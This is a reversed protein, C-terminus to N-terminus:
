VLTAFSMTERIGKKFVQLTPGFFTGAGVANRENQGQECAQDRHRHVQTELSGRGVLPASGLVVVNHKILSAADKPFLCSGAYHRCFGDALM